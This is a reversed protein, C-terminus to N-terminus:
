KYLLCDVLWLALQSKSRWM